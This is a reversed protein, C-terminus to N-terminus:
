TDSSVQIQGHPSSMDELTPDHSWRVELKFEKVLILFILSICIKINLLEFTKYAFTTPYSDIIIFSYASIHSNHLLLIIM